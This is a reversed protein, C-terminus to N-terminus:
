EKLLEDEKSLIKLVENSNIYTKEKDSLQNLVIRVREEIQILDNYRELPIAVKIIESM